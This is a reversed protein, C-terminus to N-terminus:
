ASGVVKRVAEKIPLGPERDNPGQVDTVLGFSKDEAFLAVAALAVDERTVTGNLHLKGLQIKGKSASATLGGPRLITWNLGESEILWSDSKYKAALIVGLFEASHKLKTLILYVRHLSFFFM